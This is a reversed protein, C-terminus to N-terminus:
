RYFRFRSKRIFGFPHVEFSKYVLEDKSTVFIVLTNPNQKKIIGAAEIGDIDPMDIDLFIIDFSGTRNSDLLLKPVSFTSTEAKEGAKAFEKKIVEAMQVLIREDDDCVAIRYSYM